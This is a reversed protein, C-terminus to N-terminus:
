AGSMANRLPAPSSFRVRVILKPIPGIQAALPPSWGHGPVTLIRSQGKSATALQVSIARHDHGPRATGASRARSGGRGGRLQGGKAPAATDLSAVRGRLPKAKVRRVRGLDDLLSSSPFRWSPLSLRCSSHCADPWTTRAPEQGHIVAIAPPKGTSRCPAPMVGPESRGSKLILSRPTLRLRQAFRAM